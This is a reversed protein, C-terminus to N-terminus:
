APTIDIAVPLATARWDTLDDGNAYKDHVLTRALPDDDTGEIVRGYGTFRTEGIEVTCSPSAVINRVWDARDRGGSLMYITDHEPHAAFWIEIRHPKGTARGTTTVYCFDLAALEPAIGTTPV